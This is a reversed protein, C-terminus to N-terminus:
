NEISLDLTVTFNMENNLSDENFMPFLEPYLEDNDFSIVFEFEAINNVSDYYLTFCFWVQELPHTEFIIQKDYNDSDPMIDGGKYTMNEKGITFNYSYFDTIKISCDFDTEELYLRNFFDIDQSKTINMKESNYRFAGYADNKITLINDNNCSLSFNNIEVM